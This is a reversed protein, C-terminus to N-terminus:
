GLGLGKGKVVNHRPHDRISHYIKGLRAVEEEWDNLRWNVLKQMKEVVQSLKEPTHILNIRRFLLDDIHVVSETDILKELRCKWAEDNGSSLDWEKDFLNDVNQVQRTVAQDSTIESQRRFSRDLILRITKEAVLRSTTFKVGSVSYLGEPGGMKSHDVIQERAALRISNARLVPLQGALVTLIEDETLDLGPIAQNIDQIFTVLQEPTPHPKDRVNDASAHGTGILLKDKWPHIFYIQSKNRKPAM